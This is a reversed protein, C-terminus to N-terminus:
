FAVFVAQGTKAALEVAQTMAATRAEISPDAARIVPQAASGQTSSMKNSSACTVDIQVPSYIGSTIWYVLGNLFSHQTEVRSVGNKCKSAASVTAPPVLGFIFSHAWMVSITENSAPLGTEITTHFCASSVVVAALGLSVRFGKRM